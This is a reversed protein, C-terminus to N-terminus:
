NYALLADYLLFVFRSSYCIQGHSLASLWSFVSIPSVFYQSVLSPNADAFRMKKLGFSDREWIYGSSSRHDLEVVVNRCPAIPHGNDYIYSAGAMIVARLSPFLSMPSSHEHIHESDASCDTSALNVTGHIFLDFLHSLDGPYDHVDLVRASAFVPLSLVSEFVDIEQRGDKGPAPIAFLFRSPLPTKIQLYDSPVSCDPCDEVGTVSNMKEDEGMDAILHLYDTASVTVHPFSTCTIFAYSFHQSLLHAATLALFPRVPLHTPAGHLTMDVDRPLNLYQFLAIVETIDGVITLYKLHPLSVCRPPRFSSPTIDLILIPHCDIYLDELLPLCSLTDVVQNVTDWIHCDTLRLSVIPARLPPSSYLIHCSILSVKHLSRPISGAFIDFPIFAQEPRQRSFNMELTELMAASYQMFKELLRAPEIEGREHVGYTIKLSKTRPLDQVARTITCGQDHSAYMETSVDLHLLRPYSRELCVRAWHQNQLPITTWLDPSSLVLSRWCRCVHTIAIRSPLKNWPVNVPLVPLLSFIYLIIDNLLTFIPSVKRSCVKNRTIFSRSRFPM